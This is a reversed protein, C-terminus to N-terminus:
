ASAQYARFLCPSQRLHLFLCDLNDKATELIRVQHVPSASTGPRSASRGAKNMSYVGSAFDRLPASERLLQQLPDTKLIGSRLSALLSPDLSRIAESTVYSHIQGRLEVAPAHIRIAEQIRYQVSPVFAWTTDLLLVELLALTMEMTEVDILDRVDQSADQNSQLVECPLEEFRNAWADFPCVCVAIMWHKLLLAVLPPHPCFICALSLATYMAQRPVVRISDPARRVMEMLLRLVKPQQVIRLDAQDLAKLIPSYGYDNCVTLGACYENMLLEVVSTDRPEEDIGDDLEFGRTLSSCAWHLPLSGCLGRTELARRNLGILFEVLRVSSSSSIAAEHLPLNENGYLIYDIGAFTLSAIGPRALLEVLDFPAAYKLAVHFLTRPGRASDNRLIQPNDAVIKRIFLNKEDDPWM